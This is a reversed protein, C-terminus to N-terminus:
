HISADTQSDNKNQKAAVIEMLRQEISEIRDKAPAVERITTDIFQTAKGDMRDALEKIAWQEGEAALDLLKEAAQRVRNANDQKIARQLTEHWTVRSTDRGKGVSATNGAEFKAM